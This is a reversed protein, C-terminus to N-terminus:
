WTKLRIPRTGFRCRVFITCAIGLTVTTNQGHPSARRRGIVHWCPLALCTTIPWSANLPSPYNKVVGFLGCWDVSWWWTQCTQYGRLYWWEQWNKHHDFTLPRRPSSTFYVGTTEWMKKRRWDRCIGSIMIRNKHKIRWVVHKRANNHLSM